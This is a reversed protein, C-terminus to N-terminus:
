LMALWYDGGLSRARWARAPRGVNAFLVARVGTSGITRRDVDGPSSFRVVRRQRHEGFFPYDWSDESGVFAIAGREGVRQDVARIVPAMEPRIATMQDIRDKGLATPAPATVLLMKNPNLLLCPVLTLAAAVVTLTAPVGRRSLVALLPMVLAVTPLLLRGVWINYGFLIAFAAIGVLGAIAVIRRPGARPAFAFYLLLPLLVLWGVFGYASTDESIASDAFFGFRDKIELQGVTAHATKAAIADFWPISVGPSDALTWVVRVANNPIKAERKTAQDLDGFLSGQGHLNLAYGWGGLAVVSVAAAVLGGAVIRPGPRTRWVTYGLMIALSPLLALATGKTGVAVGVALAAIVIEGADRDRLGRVGFVATAAVFFAVILDNQTSSAQLIPQPLVVFLAAAFLAAGRSFDILRAGLYVCTATGVLALWQVVAVFRDTGAIGMTWAQLFEGNPASNLQRLSGGSIQRASEQQLWYAARSLHYTMSDWNSPAVAIALVLDLLLAGAAMVVLVALAPHDSAAARTQGWSPRWEDPPRWGERPRRRGTLAWAAVAAVAIAAQAALLGGRTLAEPLSLVITALVVIAGGVVLAAAAFAARGRIRLASATAVSALALLATGAITSLVDVM